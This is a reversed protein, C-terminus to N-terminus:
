QKKEISQKTSQSGRRGNNKGGDDKVSKITAGSVKLYHNKYEIELKDNIPFDKAVVELWKGEIFEKPQINFAKKYRKVDVVERM